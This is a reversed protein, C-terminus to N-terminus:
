RGGLCVVRGDATSLYLRGRAAAMGDWAPPADLDYEALKKGDPASFAALKGGKRGQFAGLPDDPDVVDPPGAVFLTQGALVMAQIRIPVDSRWQLGRPTRAAGSRGRRADRDRPKLTAAFLTYGKKGPFFIGRRGREPYASVAYALEDDFALLQTRAISAVAWGTRNFWTDDVYGATSFAFDGPKNEGDFLKRQRMYVGDGDSALVDALAGPVTRADGPPMEGTTPDPSHIGQEHLLKGTRPELAYVHIGGDLYSSRGAALYAVDDKVLVNGPVPWASELQGFAGVLREEPAARWQWDLRGDSARLCTVRGDASGFLVLGRHVTPPTDVRGGAVYSWAPEGRDADLAVVRHEDVSAVLLRTGAVVPQTLRGGIEAEWLPELEAPVECGTSGSRRVDHRFTPWDASPHEVGSSRHDPSEGYASGRRLRGEESTKPAAPKPEREPALAFYGNLKAAIYCECPHPTLYLLGNCPVFGVLCGARGWHHLHIEETALDLFEAGRRSALLFRETAKGRYCRHHHGVYFAKRAPFRRKQAGTAPDLGLVPYDLKDKDAIYHRNGGEGERVDHHEYIWVLGDIVFVDPQGFHMWGGYRRQWLLEGSQAAYAYLTGPITHWPDRIEMEPQAVLVVGDHCVLVCLDNMRTGFLALFEPVAPRPTRWLERGTKLDLSLVADHDMLFIQGDHVALELRGFPEGGDARSRLGVYDGRRWLVEGSEADLVCVARRVPGKDEADPARPTTGISLVLLGEHYLIEDTGETGEYTKLIKGTAADLATLPANFGLTVYVREGVAVLRKPLQTPQNFRGLWATSWQRWGWDAIPRKWLLVGNFADRAVLFWKDPLSGDIGAPAEDSIYFLRGRASVMASTSPVTDHHRSWYPRATWQLHRPPGVVRDRAVANGDPGHLWHTWEDIADPWPKTFKVWTGSRRVIDFDDIGAAALQPKLKALWAPDEAGTSTSDGLCAVGLPCLVRVVEEVSLGQEMRSPLRDVVLLNVLNEAYPLRGPHVCDATVRGSLGHAHITRRMPGVAEPDSCLCHVVWRPSKALELAPEVDDSGVLSCLGGRVGAAALVSEPAEAARAQQCL